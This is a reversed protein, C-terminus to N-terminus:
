IQSVRSDLFKRVKRYQGSGNLKELERSGAFIIEPTVRLTSQFSAAMRSVVAQQQDPAAVVYIRLEDTGLSGTIAEVVYDQIGQQQNMVEFIAPPYLTTGKIKLMQQKRGIVPGIRVSTRGCACRESHMRAIDGTKYRILPMAEVGLTTICIEGAEGEQVPNNNDDLLEVLLLEPHHHGGTGHKCETFATQMETSAYTGYLDVKWLATIRNALTNPQLADTRINEGICIIKKVSTKTVDIAHETAYELLKVVFSPVAVLTTPQLREITEWQMAPLGPGTRILGAGLKKIGEYYALGAMFQRDLTLMLQYVDEESGDACAFSIAENYALRQIDNASLAITVPKGLTGSTSTFEAIRNKPICLFDQYSTQLDDKTTVPIAALEELSKLSASSFGHRQFHRAYFPSNKRVYELLRNLNALQLTQVEQPPAFEIEPQYNM